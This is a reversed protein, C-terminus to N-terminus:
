IGYFTRERRFTHAFLLIRPAFLWPLLLHPPDLLFIADLKLAASRGHWTRFSYGFLFM